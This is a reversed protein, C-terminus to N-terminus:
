DKINLGHEEIHNIAMKYGVKIDNEKTNNNIDFNVGIGQNSVCIIKAPYDVENNSTLAKLIRKIYNIPSMNQIDIQEEEEKNKKDHICLGIYNNYNRYDVMAGRVGGDVYFKNNYRVPKFFIPICTTMKILECLSLNPNNKYSLYEVKFESLNYVKCIFENGTVKYFSLLSIDKVKFLTYLTNKVINILKDNSFLGNQEFLVDIDDYDLLDMYNLSVSLKSIMTPTFNCCMLFAIISGVSCTVYRTINSYDDKLLGKDLLAKLAGVLINGKTGGGSILLTDDM